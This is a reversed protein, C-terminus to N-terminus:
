CRIPQFQLARRHFLFFSPCCCVASPTFTKLRESRIFHGWKHVQPLTLTIQPVWLYLSIFLHTCPVVMTDMASVKLQSHVTPQMHQTHAHARTDTYLRCLSTSAAAQMENILGNLFSAYKTSCDSGHKAIQFNTRCKIGFRLVTRWVTWAM